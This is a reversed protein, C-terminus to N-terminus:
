FLGLKFFMEKWFSHHAKLLLTAPLSGDESCVSKGQEEM